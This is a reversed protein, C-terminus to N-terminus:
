TGAFIDKLPLLVNIEPIPIVADTGEYVLRSFEGHADRQDVRAAPRDPELLIYTSLSKLTLYNECKEGEDARRTSDSLVEVIVTPRDQFTDDDPNSDCVVAADPYYFYTRHQRQVRIKTDSNYAECPSGDLQRGLCIMVRSAIRNHLNKGALMAYVHGDVFEYRVDSSAEGALYDEMSIPELQQGASMM